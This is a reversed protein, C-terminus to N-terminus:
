WAQWMLCPSMESLRPDSGYFVVGSVDGAGPVRGLELALALIVIRMGTLMQKLKDEALTKLGRPNGGSPGCITETDEVEEDASVMVTADGGMKEGPDNNVWRAVKRRVFDPTKESEIKEWAEDVISPLDLFSFEQADELGVNGALYNATTKIAKAPLTNGGRKESLRLVIADYVTMQTSEFGGWAVLVFVRM